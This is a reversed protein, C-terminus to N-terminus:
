SKLELYLTVDVEDLPRAQGLRTNDLVFVYEGGQLRGDIFLSHTRFASNGSLAGTDDGDRYAGFADAPFMLADLPLSLRTRGFVSLLAIEGPTEVHIPLYEGRRLTATGEFAYSRETEEVSRKEWADDGAERPGPGRMCGALGGTAAVSAAVGLRRLFRRRSM